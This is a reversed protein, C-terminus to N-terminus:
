SWLAVARTGPASHHCLHPPPITVDAPATGGTAVLTALVTQGVQGPASGSTGRDRYRGRGGEAGFVLDPGANHSYATASRQYAPAHVSGYRPGRKGPVFPFIGAIGKMHPGLDSPLHLQLQGREEVLPPMDSERDGGAAQGGPEDGVVVAGELDVEIKDIVVEV